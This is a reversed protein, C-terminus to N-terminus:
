IAGAASSGLSPTGTGASGAFAAREQATLQKRRQSELGKFSEQELEKQIEASQVGYISALDTLRRTGTRIRESALAAASRDVGLNALEEIGLASTLGRQTFETSIEAQAIKRKLSDAGEKGTLLAAAFDATDINGLQKLRRMEEKLATDANAIRKYVNTVRDELETPSVQGGILSAFIDQRALPGLNATNLTNAYQKEYSLYTEPDLEAMGADRLAKNGKFREQFFPQERINIMVAEDPIDEEKQSRMFNTLETIIKADKVPDFFTKLWSQLGALASVRGRGAAEKAMAADSQRQREGETMGLDIVTDDSMRQLVRGNVEYPEGVRTPAVGINTTVNVALDEPAITTGTRPVIGRGPVTVRPGTPAAPTTPATTPSKPLTSRIQPTLVDEGDVLPTNPKRPAM